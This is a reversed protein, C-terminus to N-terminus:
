YMGHESSSITGASDFQIKFTETPNNSQHEENLYQVAKQEMQEAKAVDGDKLSKLARAMCMISLKSKLHLPDTLSTVKRTRKRYRIRVCTTEGTPSLRIRRYRPETEEPYYYGLITVINQAGDFGKLTVFGKTEEKTIRTIIDVFQSGGAPVSTGDSITVPFGDVPVGSEITQIWKGSLYGYVRIVKGNDDPTDPIAILQQSYDVEELTVVEGLDDVYGCTGGFQSGPGNLHFEFWKNRITTPSKGINIALIGDVYRPLTVFEGGTVTLDVYGDDMGDWNGKNALAEHAETIFDFVKQKGVPGLLQAVDDYIDSVIISDRNNYSLDIPPQSETTAIDFGARSDQEEKLLRVATDEYGKAEALDNASGGRRYVELARLMLLISMPSNLPIFDDDSLIKFTKRRYLMRVAPASKSLIIQRYEPDTEGAFYFAILAGGIRLTVNGAMVGKSVRTIRTYTTISTPQRGAALTIANPLEAGEQLGDVTGYITILKGYDAPNDAEATITSPASPQIFVPTMGQDMWSYGTTEAMDNGPGNMTFEFLRSRSFSPNRNINIKVPTEVQYPLTVVNGSTVQLDIYGLLPEWQGKNALVEIAHTLRSYLKDRSCMGLIETADSIIDRVYM